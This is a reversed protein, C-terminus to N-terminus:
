LICDFQSELIDHSEVTSSQGSMLCEQVFKPSEAIEYVIFMMLGDVSKEDGLICLFLDKVYKARPKIM